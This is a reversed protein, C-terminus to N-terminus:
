NTMIRYEYEFFQSRSVEDDDEEEDDEDRDDDEDDEDDEDEFEDEFFDDIGHEFQLATLPARSSSTRSRRAM